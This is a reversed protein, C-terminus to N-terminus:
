SPTNCAYRLVAVGGLSAGVLITPVGRGMAWAAAAEVDLHELHGLTYTGASAGHGRANYSLVEFSNEQLRGALAEIHPHDKRAALGHVLVVAGVPPSSSPPWYLGALALGDTTVLSVERPRPEPRVGLREENQARVSRHAPRGIVIGPHFTVLHGIGM